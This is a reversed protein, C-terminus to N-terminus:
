YVCLILFVDVDQKNNPSKNQSIVKMKIASIEVIGKVSLDVLDERSKCHKTLNNKFFFVPVM